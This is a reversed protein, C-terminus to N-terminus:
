PRSPEQPNPKLPIVRVKEKSAIIFHNRFQINMKLISEIRDAVEEPSTLTFRLLIVGGARLKRRFILESFDKDYTILIRGQRNALTLAGEDSLGVKVEQLSAIDFGRRRLIQLSRAPLNEDALLKLKPKM